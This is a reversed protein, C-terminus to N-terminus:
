RVLSAGPRTGVTDGAALIAVVPADTRGFLDPAYMCEARAAPTHFVGATTAHARYAFHRTEAGLKDMFTVVRDDRFERHNFPSERLGPGRAETAFAGTVPEFGAPLPDDVVVQDRATGSAVYLDILVYDGVHIPGVRPAGDAGLVRYTRDVQLGHAFASVSPDASASKLYAEYFLPAGSTSEFSLSAKNMVTSMALVGTHAVLSSGPLHAQDVVHGGLRVVFDRPRADAEAAVDALAVLAWAADQTTAWRGGQRLSLLGRTLAPILANKPDVSAFARLVLATTEAASGPFSREDVGPAV